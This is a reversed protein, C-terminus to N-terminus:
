NSIRSHHQEFTWVDQRLARVALQCWRLGLDQFMARVELTESHAAYADMETAKGLCDMM